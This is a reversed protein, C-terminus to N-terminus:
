IDAWRWCQLRYGHARLALAGVYGAAPALTHLSWCAAAAHDGDIHVIRAPEDAAHSVEVRELGYSIGLGHAKLYAEKRTWLRFFAEVQEAADLSRLAEAERPAFYREAMGLLDSDPRVRVRELDVGIECGGTVAFLAMGHSHSVNFCVPAPEPGALRPKGRSTVSFCVRRPDLGLCDGLLLRLLARAVIFEDRARAAVPRFRSAREREDDSLFRSLVTVEDATRDLAACWVHVEGSAPKLRAPSTPWDHLTASM